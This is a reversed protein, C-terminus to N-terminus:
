KAAEAKRKAKRELRALLAKVTYSSKVASSISAKLEGGADSFGSVFVTVLGDKGADALVRYFPWGSKKSPASFRMGLVGLVPVPRGYGERLAKRIVDDLKKMDVKVKADSTEPVSSKASKAKAPKAKPASKVAPKAVVAASAKASKRRLYQVAGIRNLKREEMVAAIEADTPYAKSETTMQTDKTPKSGSLEHALARRASVVKV